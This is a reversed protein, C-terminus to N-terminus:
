PVAHAIDALQKMVVINTCATLTMSKKILQVHIAM